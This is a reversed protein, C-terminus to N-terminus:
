SEPHAEEQIFIGGLGIIHSLVKYFTIHIFACILLLLTNSNVESRQILLGACGNGETKKKGWVQKTPLTPFTRVYLWFRDKQYYRSLKFDTTKFIDLGSKTKGELAVCPSDSGRGFSLRNFVHHCGRTKAKRFYVDKPNKLYREFPM